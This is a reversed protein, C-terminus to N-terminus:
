LYQFRTAANAILVRDPYLPAIQRQSKNPRGDRYKESPTKAIGISASGGPVHDESFLAVDPDGERLRQALQSLRRELGRDNAGRFRNEGLSTEIEGHAKDSRLDGAKIRTLVYERMSKPVSEPLSTGWLALAEKSAQWISRLIRARGGATSAKIGIEAALSQPGVLIPLLRTQGTWIEEAGCTVAIRCGVPLDFVAVEGTPGPIAGDRWIGDPYLRPNTAPTNTDDNVTAPSYLPNTRYSGIEAEVSAPQVEYRTTWYSNPHSGSPTVRDPSERSLLPDNAPSKPPRVVASGIALNGDQGLPIRGLTVSGKLHTWKHNDIPGASVFSVLDPKKERLTVVKKLHREYLTPRQEGWLSEVDLAVERPQGTAVTLVEGSLEPEGDPLEQGDLTVQTPAAEPEPSGGFGIPEGPEPAAADNTQYVQFRWSNWRNGEEDTLSIPDGNEDRIRSEYIVAKYEGKQFPEEFHFQVLGESVEVQDPHIQPYETHDTEGDLPGIVFLPPTDDAAGVGGVAFPLDLTLTRVPRKSREPRGYPM